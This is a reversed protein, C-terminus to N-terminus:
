RTWGRERATRECWERLQDFSANQLTSFEQKRVGDLDPASWVEAWNRSFAVYGRVDGCTGLLSLFGQAWEWAPEAKPNAGATMAEVWARAEDETQFVPSTVKAVYGGAAEVVARASGNTGTHATWDWKM